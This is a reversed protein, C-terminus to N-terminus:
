PQEESHGSRLLSPHVHEAGGLMAVASRTGCGERGLSRVMLRLLQQCEENHQRTVKVARKSYKEVDEQNGAQLPCRPHPTLPANAATM